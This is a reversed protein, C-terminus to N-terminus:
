AAAWAITLSTWFYGFSELGESPGFALGVGQWLAAVCLPPILMLWAQRKRNEPLLVLLLALVGWLPLSPFYYHWRWRFFVPESESRGLVGLEQFAIM